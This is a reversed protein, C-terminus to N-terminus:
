LLVPLLLFCYLYFPLLTSLLCFLLCAFSLCLCASLLWKRCASASNRVIWLSRFYHIKPIGMSVMVLKTLKAKSTASLLRQSVMHYLTQRAITSLHFTRDTETQSHLGWFFVFFLCQKSFSTETMVNQQVFFVQSPSSTSWGKSNFEVRISVHAAHSV